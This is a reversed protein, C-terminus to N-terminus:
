VFYLFVKGAIAKTVARVGVFGVYFLYFFSRQKPLFLHAYNPRTELIASMLLLQQRLLSEPNSLALSSDLIGILWPRRLALMLIKQDRPSATDYKRMESAKLYLEISKSDPSKGSLLYKGFVEAEYAANM